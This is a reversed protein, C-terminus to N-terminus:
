YTRTHVHKTHTINLFTNVSGELEKCSATLSSISHQENNRSGKDHEKKEKESSSSSLSKADKQTPQVIQTPGSTSSTKRVHNNALMTTTDNALQAQCLGRIRSYSRLKHLENYM